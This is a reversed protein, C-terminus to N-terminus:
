GGSSSRSCPSCGAMAEGAATTMDFGADLVVLRWKRREAEAVIDAFDKLSRTLRDLRAVVLTDGRRLQRRIAALGERNDARGGSGVEEVVEAHPYRELVARRQAELGLGSDGQEETSVRVYGVVRPNM